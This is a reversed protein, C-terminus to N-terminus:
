NPSFTSTRRLIPTRFFFDPFSTWPGFVNPFGAKCVKAFCLKTSIESQIPLQWNWDVKRIDINMKFCTASAPIETINICVHAFM